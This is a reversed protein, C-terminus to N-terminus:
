ETAVIQTNHRVIVFPDHQDTYAPNGAEDLIRFIRQPSTKLRVRGGDLLKYENWQEREVEFDLEIADHEKDGLTVKITRPM